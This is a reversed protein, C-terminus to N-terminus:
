TVLFSYSKNKPLFFLILKTIPALYLLDLLLSFAAWNVKNFSAPINEPTALLPPNIQMLTPNM